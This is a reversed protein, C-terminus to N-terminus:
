FCELGDEVGGEGAVHALVPLEAVTGRRIAVLYISGCGGVVVGIARDEGTGAAELVYTGPAMHWVVIYGTGFGLSNSYRWILAALATSTPDTVRRLVKVGEKKAISM